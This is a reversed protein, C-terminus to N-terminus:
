NFYQIIKGKCTVIMVSNRSVVWEVDFNENTKIPNIWKELLDIIMLYKQGVVQCYLLPYRESFTYNCRPNWWMNLSEEKGVKFFARLDIVQIMSPELYDGLLVVGGQHCVCMFNTKYYCIKDFWCNPNSLELNYLIKLRNTECDMISLTQYSAVLYKRPEIPVLTFGNNIVLQNNSDQFVENILGDYSSFRIQNDSKNVRLQNGYFKVEKSYDQNKVLGNTYNEVQEVILAGNKQITLKHYEYKCDDHDQPIAVAKILIIDGNEEIKMDECDRFIPSDFIIKEQVLYENIINIICKEKLSSLLNSSLENLINTLDDKSNSQLFLGSFM